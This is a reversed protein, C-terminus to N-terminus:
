KDAWSGCVKTDAKMPVRAEAPADGNVVADAASEMIGTLWSAAEEAQEDPAVCIVEDHALAM